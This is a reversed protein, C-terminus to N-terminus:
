EPGGATPGAVMFRERPREGEPIDSILVRYEPRSLAMDPNTSIQNM